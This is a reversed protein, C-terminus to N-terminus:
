TDEGLFRLFARRPIKMCQGCVIVNFGLASPNARGQDRLGQADIGLVPAIDAPVLMVKDSKKIEELTM